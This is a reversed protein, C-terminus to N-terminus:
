TASCCVAVYLALEVALFAAGLSDANYGRQRHLVLLYLAYMVICPAFIAYQWDPIRHTLCVCAAFPLLGQVALGAGAAIGPRRYAPDGGAANEGDTHPMMMTLQGAVMKAFPDAVSATLAATAPPLQSLAALLIATYAALTAVGALSTGGKAQGAATKLSGAFRLLGREHRAGTIALRAAFALMLALPYPMVASGFYIVAGMAVGTLWGVLPWLEIARHYSTLPPRYLRRLPLSTFTILAAWPIDYWKTTYLPTRMTNHENTTFTANDCSLGSETRLSEARLGCGAHRAPLTVCFICFARCRSM